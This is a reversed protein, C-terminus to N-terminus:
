LKKNAHVNVHTQSDAEDEKEIMHKSTKWRYSHGINLQSLGAWVMCHWVLWYHALRFTVLSGYFSSSQFYVKSM